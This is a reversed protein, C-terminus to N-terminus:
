PFDMSTNTQVNILVYLYSIIYIFEDYIRPNFIQIHALRAEDIFSEYMNNHYLTKTIFSYREYVTYGKKNIILIM